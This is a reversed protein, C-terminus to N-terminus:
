ICTFNRCKLKIELFRGQWRQQCLRWVFLHKEFTPGRRLSSFGLMAIENRFFKAGSPMNAPWLCQFNRM